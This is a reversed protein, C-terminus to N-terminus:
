PNHILGIVKEKCNMLEPRVEVKHIRLMLHFHKSIPTNSALFQQKTLVACRRSLFNAPYEGSMIMNNVRVKFPALFPTPFMCTEAHDFGSLQVNRM